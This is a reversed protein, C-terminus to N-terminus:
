DDPPNTLSVDAYCNKTEWLQIRTLKATHNALLKPGVEHLIYLAMNEVSPNGSMKFYRQDKMSEIAAIVESDEENVLFSHDWNNKIWTGFLSEIDSFLVM